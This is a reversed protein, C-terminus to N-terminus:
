LGLSLFQVVGILGAVLLILAPFASLGFGPRAQGPGQCLQGFLSHSWQRVFHQSLWDCTVGSIDPTVEVV